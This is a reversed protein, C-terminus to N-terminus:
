RAGMEPVNFAGELHVADVIDHNPRPRGGVEDYDLRVM